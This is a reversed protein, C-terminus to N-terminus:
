WMVRSRTWRRTPPSSRSTSRWGASRNRGLTAWRGGQVPAIKPAPDSWQASESGRMPRVHMWYQIGPTLGGIITDSTSASIASGVIPSLGPNAAWQVEYSAGEISEWDFMLSGAIPGDTVVIEILKPQPDIAAGKPPLGFNNKEAGSPTYLADTFEDVKKMIEIGALVRTGKLQGAVKWADQKADTDTISTAINGRATTTAAFPGRQAKAERGRLAGALIGWKCLSHASWRKVSEGCRALITVSV